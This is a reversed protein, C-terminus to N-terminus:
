NGHHTEQAATQVPEPNTRIYAWSVDPRLRECSVGTLQEITPCKDAPLTRKGDRWFCVAQPTVALGKALNTVSGMVQIAEDIPKM